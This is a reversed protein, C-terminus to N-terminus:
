SNESDAEEGLDESLNQSAVELRCGKTSPRFTKRCFSCNCIERCVPCSWNSDLLAEKVDEGYRTKLCPGCFFGRLGICKGSRCITKTDSTKQRCQHCSTGKSRDPIKEKAIKAINTLMEETVQEPSLILDNRKRVCPTSKRKRKLVSRKNKKCINEKKEEIPTSPELVEVIAENNSDPQLDKQEQLWNMLLNHTAVRSAVEEENEQVIPPASNSDDDDEHDVVSDRRTISKIRERRTKLRRDKSKKPKKISEVLAPTITTPLEAWSDIRNRKLKSEEFSDEDEMFNKIQGGHHGQIPTAGRSSHTSADGNISEAGETNSQNGGGSDSNQGCVSMHQPWHAQQCPYDCYSTNWCCFFLAEKGCNACWQKKKTEEIARQKEIDAQRKVETLKEGLQMEMQRRLESLKQEMQRRVDEIARQKEAELNARMEVLMVDANHRVEIIEQQHRWNCRELELQLAGLRAEPTGLGVLGGLVEELSTRMMEALKHAHKHLETSLPGAEPPLHRVMSPGPFRGGMMMGQANAMMRLGPSTIPTRPGNGMGIGGIPPGFINRVNSNTPSPLSHSLLPPPPINPSASISSSPTTSGGFSVSPSVSSSCVATTTTTTPTTVSSSHPTTSPGITSTIKDKPKESSSSSAVPIISISPSLRTTDVGSPMKVKEKEKEKEKESAKTVSVSTGLNALPNESRKDKSSSSKSSKSSSHDSMGKTENTSNAVSITVRDSGSTHELTQSDVRKIAINGIKKVLKVAELLSDSKENEDDQVSNTLRTEVDAEEQEPKELEKSKRHERKERLASTVEKENESSIQSHPKSNKQSSSAVEKEGSLSKSSITINHFIKNAYNQFDIISSNAEKSFEEKLKAEDVTEMEEEDDNNEKQCEESKGTVLLSKINVSPLSFKDDMDDEFNQNVKESMKQINLSKPLSVKGITLSTNALLQENYDTDLTDTTASKDEENDSLINENDNCSAELRANKMIEQFSEVKKRLNIEDIFGQFYDDDMM